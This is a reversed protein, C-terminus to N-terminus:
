MLLLCLSTFGSAKSNNAKGTSNCSSPSCAAQLATSPRLRLNAECTSPHFTSISPGKRAWARGKQYAAMHAPLHRPYGELLAPHGQQQLSFQLANCGQDGAPQLGATSTAGAPSAVQPCLAEFGSQCYTHTNTIYTNQFM